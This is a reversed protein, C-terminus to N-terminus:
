LKTSANIKRVAAALAYRMGDKKPKGDDGAMTFEKDIEEAVIAPVEERIIKRFLAEAEAETMELFEQGTVGWPRTDYRAAHTHTCEIHCHGEHSAGRLNQYVWGGNITQDHGPAWWMESRAVPDYSGIGSLRYDGTAALWRAFEYSDWADSHTLDLADVSEPFGTADPSPNHWSTRSAHSADGITGDITTPRDPWRVMVEDYLALLCPAAVWPRGDRVGAKAVM